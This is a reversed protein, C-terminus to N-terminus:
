FSFQQNYQYQQETYLFQQHKSTAPRRISGRSLGIFKRTLGKTGRADVMLRINVGERAKKYLMGLMSMGFIDQEVIFYTVDISKKANDLIHWRAFWSNVNEPLFRVKAAPDFVNTQISDFYKEVDARAQGAIGIFAVLLVMLILFSGIRKM